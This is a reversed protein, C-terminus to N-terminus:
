SGPLGAEAQTVTRPTLGSDRRLKLYDELDPPGSHLTYGDPIPM